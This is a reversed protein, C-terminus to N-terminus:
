IKQTKVLTKIELDDPKNTKTIHTQAQEKNDDTKRHRPPSPKVNVQRGKYM